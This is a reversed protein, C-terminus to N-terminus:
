NELLTIEVRRNKQRGVETNNDAIPQDAGYGRTVIRSPERIAHNIFYQAIVGARDESLKKRGAAYGALATHGTVLVDRDHYTRLVVAIQELKQEEGPLMRASDAYFQINDLTITIGEDVVKVTGAVELEELTDRIDSAIREKDMIESEILEAEANGRFEITNGDSLEFIMRFSEYYATPQGIASNWFVTQDSAGMIRLPFLQGTVAEPESFVRYSVSFAPYKENKWEREGLFTYTATFPIRYPEQIDFMSRFDHVEIGEATWQEGIQIDRDPFLPVNRVMPTWYQEDIRYYGRQDRDFQATYEEDFQYNSHDSRTSTQTTVTHTGVGNQVQTVEAAIRNLTQNKQDLRRNIYVEEEVQSLIRYIDGTRYQFTFEEAQVTTIVMLFLLIM